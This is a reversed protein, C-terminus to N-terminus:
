LKAKLLSDAKHLGGLIAAKVKAVKWKEDTLYKIREDLNNVASDMNFEDMWKNMAMEAYSLDKAVSDLKNKYAAAAQRTKAPLTAISDLLRTVQKQMVSIKGMKSMGVGHGDMIDAMLSDAQTKPVDTTHDKNGEQKKDANNCAAIILLILPFIYKKM